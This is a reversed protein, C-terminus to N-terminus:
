VHMGTEDVCLAIKYSTLNHNTNSNYNNNNDSIAPLLYIKAHSHNPKADNGTMWARMVTKQRRCADALCVCAVGPHCEVHPLPTCACVVRFSLVIVNAFLLVCVCLAYCCSRHM